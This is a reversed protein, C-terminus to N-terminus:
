YGLSIMMEMCAHMCWCYYGDSGKMKCTVVMAVLAMFPRGDGAKTEEEGGRVAEAAGGPRYFAFSSTGFGVVGGCGPCRAVAAVVEVMRNQRRRRGGFCILVPLLVVIVLVKEVLIQGCRM